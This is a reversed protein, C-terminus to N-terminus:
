YGINEINEKTHSDLLHVYTEATISIDSHGLMESLGKLDHTRMYYHSAFTHRLTYWFRTVDKLKATRKIRQIIRRENEWTFCLTKDAQKQHNILMERLKNSVRLYRFNETKSAAIYIKGTKFDIDKWTLRKMESKRPGAYIAMIIQPYLIETKSAKILNKIEDYNLFRHPTKKPNPKKLKLPSKSLYNSSVCWNLFAKLTAIINRNFHISHNQSALFKEVTSDTFDSLRLPQVIDIFQDLYCKINKYQALSVRGKQRELFEDKIQVLPKSKQPLPSENLRLKNEIENKKFKATIKDSTKLSHQIKVGNDYYIIWYTNGRLYISAM